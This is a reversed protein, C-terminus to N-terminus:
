EIDYRETGWLTEAPPSDFYDALARLRASDYGRGLIDTNCTYCLLGRMCGKCARGEAHGHERARRHNHDSHKIANGCPCQHGQLAKLEAYDEPHMGYTDAQRKERARQRERKLKAEM